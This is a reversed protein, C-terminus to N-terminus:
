GLQVLKAGGCHHMIVGALATGKTRRQCGLKPDDSLNAFPLIAISISDDRAHIDSSAPTTPNNGTDLAREGLVTVEAIFQFGQGHLTKIISPNGVDNGVVKRAGHISSSLTSDSVTVNSWIHSMLEDRGVIRDREAILYSLIEFVKARMHVLEGDRFLKRQELDLVCNGFALFM